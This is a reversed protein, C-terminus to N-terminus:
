VTATLALDDAFTRHHIVDATMSHFFSEVFANDGIERPRQAFSHKGGGLV